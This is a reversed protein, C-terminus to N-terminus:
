AARRAEPEYRVTRLAAIVVAKALPPPVSNGVCKIQATKTLPKGNDNRAEIEYTPPFGQCLFLERPTLMRFGIDVLVWEVDDIVLVLPADYGLWKAVRLAKAHVDRALELQVVAFRDRTDITSIPENANAATSTGNYRILLATTLAHHTGKAAITDVPTDVDQASAEVHEDSTGRLKTMHVAAISKQDRAAITDLPKEIEQGASGSRDNNGGNNKILVPAVLGHKQGQAVLTGIPKEVDYVRPSQAKTTETAAREGNSRHVLYPTAIAFDTGGAPVTGIPAEISHAGQGRRKGDAGIDGHATRVLTPAVVSFRPSTDLTTIPEDVPQGRTGDERQTNYRQIIPAIVVHEGRKSTTITGLPEDAPKADNGGGGYTKAKAVLPSVVNLGSRNGAITRSPEDVDHVRVDTGGKDGYSTPVIFPRAAGFVFRDIGCRVRAETKPKLPKKRDFISPCAITWDICEAATRYPKLGPGHTPVPWSVPEDSAILFFRERSTPAGYHHAKLVRWEVYRYYKSLRRIFANFLTGRRAKIPRMYCCGKLCKPKAKEVPKKCKKADRRGNEIAAEKSCGNSHVRHLPGFHVFQKVNELCLVRPRAPSAAWTNAIWCLGRVKTASEDLPGGKAQSFFICTPSFWALAYRRGGSAKVPDVKVIDECYTRCRPHNARYMQLAGPWHNVAVDIAERETIGLEALADDVAVRVGGGGAFNDGIPESPDLWVRLQPQQEHVSNFLSLTPNPPRLKM